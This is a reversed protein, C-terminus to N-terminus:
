VLAAKASSVALRKAKSWASSGAGSLAANLAWFPIKFLLYLICGVVLMDVLGGATPLGLISDSSLFIRFASVLLLSQAVPAVLLAVTGRWWIRAWGESQPLSHTILLLPASATLIVLVAIRLVYSVLVLVGLVVLAIALLALFPNLQGGAFLAEAMKSGVADPDLSGFIARSLSSSLSVAFGVFLLSLNAAGAAFLLRPILEKASLQAGVGGNVTILGAGILAFIILLSDAIALSFRWLDRIRENEDVRPTSFVTRGLLDFVPALASAVLDAFWQSIASRIRGGIDFFSPEQTPKADQGVSPTPSPSPGPTQALASAPTLVLAIVLVLFLATSKM